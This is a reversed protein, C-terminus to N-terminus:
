EVMIDKAFGFGIIYQCQGTKVVFNNNMNRMLCIKGGCCIGKEALVTKDKSNGNINKITFYKNQEAFALPVLM